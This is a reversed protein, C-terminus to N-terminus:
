LGHTVPVAQHPSLPLVGVLYLLRLEAGGLGIVGGAIGVAFGVLGYALINEIEHARCYLATAASDPQSARLPVCRAGDIECRFLSWTTM